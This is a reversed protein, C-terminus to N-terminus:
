VLWFCVLNTQRPAIPHQRPDPYTTMTEVPDRFAVSPQDLIRHAPIGSVWRTARVDENLPMKDQVGRLRARDCVVNDLDGM